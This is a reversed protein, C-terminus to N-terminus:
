EIHIHLVLTQCIDLSDFARKCELKLTTNGAKLTTFLFTDKGFDGMMGSSGWNIQNDNRLMTTDISSIVWTYGGDGYDHLTVNLLDGKKMVITTGNNRETVYVTSPTMPKSIPKESLTVALVTGAAIAALMVLGVFVITTKTKM